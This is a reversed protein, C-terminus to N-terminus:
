TFGGLHNVAGHERSLVALRRGARQHVAGEAVWVSRAGSAAMGPAYDDSGRHYHCGTADPAPIRMGGDSARPVGALCRENAM